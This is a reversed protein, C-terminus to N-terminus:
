SRRPRHVTGARGGGGAAPLAPQRSPRRPLARPRAARRGLTSATMFSSSSAIPCDPPALADLDAFVARKLELQEPVCEQVHGAGAVALALDPEAPSGPSFLPRRNPWSGSVRCIRGLRAAFRALATTVAGTGYRAPARTPRRPSSSPGARASAAPASSPSQRTSPRETARCRWPPGGGMSDGGLYPRGSLADVALGAVPRATGSRRAPSRRRVPLSGPHVIERALRDQEGAGGLADARWRRPAPCPPHLRSQANRCRGPRHPPPWARCGQRLAQRRTPASRRSDPRPRGARARPAPRHRPRISTSTLLAATIRSSPPISASSAAQSWTQASASCTLTM